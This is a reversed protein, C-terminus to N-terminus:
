RTSAKGKGKGRSPTPAGRGSGWEFVTRAREIEEHRLRRPGGDVEVAIGDDDAAVLEGELRREGEVGPHTKVRIRAGVAAAFHAPRRLPRELGPSSVELTYRGPMPDHADLASSLERTVQSLVDLDVGGPGDVLVRLTPGAFEVDYLHLGHPELLPSVVREVTEITAM